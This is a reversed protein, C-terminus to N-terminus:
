ERINSPFILHITTGIGLTSEVSIRGGLEEIMKKCLFLGMGTGNEKTTKLPEFLSNLQANSMGIGNDKISIVIEQQVISTSILILDNITHEKNSFSELANRFINVLIQKLRNKDGHLHTHKNILKLQLKISQLNAESEFIPLIESILDNICFFELSHDFRKSCNLFEKILSSARNIESLSIDAYQSVLPDASHQKILQLFGKVTTLPNRVEHTISSVMKGINESYTTSFSLERLTKELSQLLDSQEIVKKEMSIRQQEMWKKYAELLTTESLQEM